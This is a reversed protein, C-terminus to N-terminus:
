FLNKNKRKYIPSIVFCKSAAVLMFTAPVGFAVSYCDVDDFCQMSERLMPTLFASLLAAATIAYHLVSFFHGLTKDQQPRVFQDGGFAAM